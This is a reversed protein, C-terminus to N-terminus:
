ARRYYRRYRVDPCFNGCSYSCNGSKFHFEYEIGGERENAMPSKSKRVIGNYCIARLIYILMICLISVYNEAFYVYQM